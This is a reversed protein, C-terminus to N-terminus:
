PKLAHKSGLIEVNIPSANGHESNSGYLRASVHQNVYENYRLISDDHEASSACSLLKSPIMSGFTRQGM